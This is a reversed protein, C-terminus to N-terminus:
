STQPKPTCMSVLHRHKRPAQHLQQCPKQNLHLEFDGLSCHNDRPQALGQRLVRAVVVGKVPAGVSTVSEVALGLSTMAAALKEADTGFNGFENLWSNLIKM